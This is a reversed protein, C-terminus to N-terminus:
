LNTLSARNEPTDIELAHQHGNIKLQVKTTAATAASTGAVQKLFHRRTAPGGFILLDDLGGTPDIAALEALEIEEREKESVMRFESAGTGKSAAVTAVGSQRRILTQIAAPM